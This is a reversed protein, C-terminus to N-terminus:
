EFKVRNKYSECFIIRENMFVYPWTRTTALCITRVMLCKSCKRHRQQPCSSQWNGLPRTCDPWLFLVPIIRSCALPWVMCHFFFIPATCFVFLENFYFPPLNLLFLLIFSGNQHFIGYQILLTCLGEPCVWLNSLSHFTPFVIVIACQLAHVRRKM